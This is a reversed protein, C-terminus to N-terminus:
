VAIIHLGNTAGSLQQAVPSTVLLMQYHEKNQTYDAIASQIEEKEALSLERQVVDNAFSTSDKKTSPVSDSNASPLKKSISFDDDYRDLISKTQGSRVASNDYMASNLSTYDMMATNRVFGVSSM